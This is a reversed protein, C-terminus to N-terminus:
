DQALRYAEIIGMIRGTAHSDLKGMHAGISSQSTLMGELVWIQSWRLLCSKAFM